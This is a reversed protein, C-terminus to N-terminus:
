NQLNSVRSKTEFTTRLSKNETTKTLMMEAGVIIPNSPKINVSSFVGLDMGDKIKEQVFQQPKLKL